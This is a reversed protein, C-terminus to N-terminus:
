ILSHITETWEMEVLSSTDGPLQIHVSLILCSNNKIIIFLGETERLSM